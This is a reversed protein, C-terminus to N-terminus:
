LWLLCSECLCAVEGARQRMIPRPLRTLGIEVSDFGKKAEELWDSTSHGFRLGFYM